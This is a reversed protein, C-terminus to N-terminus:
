VTGVKQGEIVSAVVLM